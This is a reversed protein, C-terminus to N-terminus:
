IIKYKKLNKLNISANLDRDIILGCGCIHMRDSLKKKVINGCNSCIQSSPYFRDAQRIEIGYKISIRILFQIFYYLKQDQIAKSLHRNKMMGSINLDEIVVYRVFKGSKTKILSYVSKKIHENRINVLKQYIRNLCFINKKINNSTVSVGVKKKLKKNELKRSLARQARKLKKEIKKIKKTKNINKINNGDSSVALSKIGLDIGIGYDEYEVNFRDCDNKTIFSIYFRDGQKKLTASTIESKLPLYGFEKLTIWGLIPVKVKNRKIQFKTGILYFSPDNKGKKKCKPYKSMGKFFRKFAKESNIIVQKVAKSSVEQIWNNEPHEIRYENNLYKSFSYSSQFKLGNDYREKNTILYLNYIFRCVGVTKNYKEKQINNLKVEIRYTKM